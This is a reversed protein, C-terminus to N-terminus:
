DSPVSANSEKESPNFIDEIAIRVKEFEAFMRGYGVDITKLISKVDEKSPRSSVQLQSRRIKQNQVKLVVFGLSALIGDL